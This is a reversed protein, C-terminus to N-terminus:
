KPPKKLVNLGGGDLLLFDGDVCQFVERMGYQKVTVSAIKKSSGKTTEINFSQQRDVGENKDSQVSIVGNGNGTYTIVISDNSGNWAIRAEM